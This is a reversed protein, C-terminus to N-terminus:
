DQKYGKYVSAQAVQFVFNGIKASATTGDGSPYTNSYTMGGVKDYWYLEYPCDVMLCDLIVGFQEKLETKLQNTDTSTTEWSLSLFNTIDNTGILPFFTTSGGNIAVAQIQGKLADYVAQQSDSLVQEGYNGFLSTGGYEPYLMQQVYGDLLDANDPLDADSTDITVTEVAMIQEPGDESAAALATTPLMGLLMALTLVMSWIRTNRKGM